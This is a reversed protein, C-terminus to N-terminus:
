KAVKCSSIDVWQHTGWERADVIPGTVLLAGDPLDVEVVTCVAGFKVGHYPGDTNGERGVRVRDGPRVLLPDVKRSM